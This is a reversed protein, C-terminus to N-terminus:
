SYMAIHQALRMARWARAGDPDDGAEDSWGRYRHGENNDEM